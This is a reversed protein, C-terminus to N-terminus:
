AASTSSNNRLGSSGSCRHVLALWDHQHRARATEDATMDHGCQRALSPRDAARDAFRFAHVVLDHDFRDAGFGVPLGRKLADVGDNMEGCPHMVLVFLMRNLEIAVDVNGARQVQRATRRNCTYALEDEDAGSEHM